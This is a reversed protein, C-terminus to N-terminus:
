PRDGGARGGRSAAPRRGRAAPRAPSEGARRPAAEAAPPAPRYTVAFGPCTAAHHPGVGANPVAVKLRVRRGARLDGLDWEIRGGEVRCRGNGGSSTLGPPAPLRVVVERWAVGDPVVVEGCLYVSPSDPPAVVALAFTAEGLRGAPPPTVAVAAPM